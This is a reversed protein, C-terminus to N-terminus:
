SSLITTKYIYRVEKYKTRLYYGAKVHDVVNGNASNYQFRGEVAAAVARFKLKELSMANSIRSLPRSDLVANSPVPYSIPRSKKAAQLQRRRLPSNAFISDGKM